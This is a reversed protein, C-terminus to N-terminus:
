KNCWKDSTIVKIMEIIQSNTFNKAKIAQVPCVAACKGCGMCLNNIITAQEFLILENNILKEKPTIIIAYITM